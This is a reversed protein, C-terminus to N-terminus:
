KQTKKPEPIIYTLTDDIFLLRKEEYVGFLKTYIWEERAKGNLPDLVRIQDPSGWAYRVQQRTMGIAVEGKIIHEQVDLPYNKIEEQTFRVSSSTCGALLLVAMLLIVYFTKGKM